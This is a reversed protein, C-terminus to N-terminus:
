QLAELPFQTGLPSLGCYQRSGPKADYQQHYSEAYYFEGAPEIETTIIGFGRDRLVQQYLKKSEEAIKRQEDNEFYIGSRYQTGRDNGQQNLTTPDHREWFVKLIEKLSIKSPDYVVRVVENHNTRGSCVEEYTPNKTEGQSYGVHTSYVGPMRMFLNESCWFCGMGLVISETNEPFPPYMRSGLLFHKDDKGPADPIPKDSGEICSSKELLEVPKGWGFAAATMPSAAFAYVATGVALKSKAGKMLSGAINRASPIFGKIGGPLVRPAMRFGVGMSSPVFAMMCIASSIGAFLITGAVKHRLRIM